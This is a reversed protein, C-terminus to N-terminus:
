VIQINLTYQLYVGASDQSSVGTIKFNQTLTFDPYVVKYTYIRNVNVAAGEAYRLFVKEIDKGLYLFTLTKTATRSTAHMETLTSDESLPVNNDAGVSTNSVRTLKLLQVGDIYVKVNNGVVASCNANQVQAIGSVVVQQTLRGSDAYPNATPQQEFKACVTYTEEGDQEPQTVNFAQWGLLKTQIDMLATDRVRLDEGFGTPLDFTLTITMNEADLEERTFAFPARVVNMVVVVREDKESPAANTNLHVFYKDYGIIENIASALFQLNIM